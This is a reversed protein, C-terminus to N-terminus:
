KLKGRQKYTRLTDPNWTVVPIPIYNNVNLTSEKEWPIVKHIYPIYFCSINYLNTIDM